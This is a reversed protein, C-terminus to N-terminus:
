KYLYNIVSQWNPYKETAFQILEGQFSEQGKGDAYDDILYDGILLSKNSSIILRETFEYGFYMEIWLRKETYSHPNRNSPATLIYVDFDKRLKNVSEIAGKIPELNVFFGLQSQPFKLEPNKNKSEQYAKMFDCLVDDMDVYIRKMIEGEKKCEADHKDFESYNM